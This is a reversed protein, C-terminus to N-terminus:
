AQVDYTHIHYQGDCIRVADRPVVHNIPAILKEGKRFSRRQASVRFKVMAPVTDINIATVKCPILGNFSDYYALCGIKLTAM